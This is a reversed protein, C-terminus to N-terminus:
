RGAAEGFEINENAKGLAGFAQVEALGFDEIFGANFNPAPPVEDDLLNNIHWKYGVIERQVFM